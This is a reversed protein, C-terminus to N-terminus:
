ELKTLILGVTTISVEISLDERTSCYPFGSFQNEKLSIHFNSNQSTSFYQFWKVEDIDTMCTTALQYM